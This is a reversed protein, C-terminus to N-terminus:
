RRARVARQAGGRDPDRAAPLADQAAPERPRRLSTLCGDVIAQFFQFLVMSILIYAPYDKIARASRRRDRRLRLLDRRLARVAARADVRLRARLRLLAAQVRDHRADVLAGLLARLDAGLVVPRQSIAATSMRPRDLLQAPRRRHRRDRAHRPRRGVRPGRAPRARGRGHGRARRVPTVTYRMPALWNDFRSACRSRRAPRSAAARGTAGSRRRPSCPTARSTSCTSPSSRTTSRRRPLAGGHVDHLAAGARADKIRAGRTTRSGPRRSRRSRTTATASARRRALPDLRGFNLENYRRAIAHPAGIGLM